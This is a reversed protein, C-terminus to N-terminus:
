PKHFAGFDWVATRGIMLTMPAGDPLSRYDEDGISFIIRDTRDVALRSLRFRASGIHLEPLADTVGFERTSSLEIETMPQAAGNRRVAVVKNEDSVHVDEAARAAAARPPASPPSAPFTALGPAAALAKVLRVDGISLRGRSSGDFQFRVGRFQGLDAGPFSQIPIRVTQFISVNSDDDRNSGVPRHLRAASSLKVPGSLRGSGDVLRISFDVNAATSDDMKCSTDFCELKVRFELSRYGASALAVSANSANVQLYANRTRWEVLAARQGPDHGWGGAARHEYRDLLSSGNAAGRSSTGTARSFDDIIFNSSAMLSATYGRAFYTIPRLAPPLPLSPDFRDALSPYRHGGVHARFFPIVTGKAIQRQQESGGVAPFLMPQGPCEESDSEQWETNYFNHNTGLVEISSKPLATAESSRKIMRDLPRVGELENVDGDCGPLLVNWAVGEADLTRSTQGDVPAIEFLAEFNVKGIRVPWPSGADRYQALAARMGEGGRSHGMLGVHSFDILGRLSFGLSAPTAARGSSWDALQQMHRLVLRGRRLNLGSDVLGDTGPGVANVGRNANISVVVYGSAALDAALYGYGLHNPVPEWGDRCTGSYSYQNGRDLRIGLAEYYIGCTPHNGHLFLVLPFRGARQPRYVAAWLETPLASTVEPDVAAPLKYEGVLYAAPATAAAQEALANGCSALVLCLILAARLLSVPLAAVGRGPRPPTVFGPTPQRVASFCSHSCVLDGRSSFM